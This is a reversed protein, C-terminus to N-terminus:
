RTEHGRRSIFEKQAIRADSENKVLRFVEEAERFADRAATVRGRKVQTTVVNLYLQLGVLAPRLSADDRALRGLENNVAFVTRLAAQAVESTDDLSAMQSGLEVLLEELHSLTENAPLRM